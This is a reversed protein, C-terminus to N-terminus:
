LNPPCRPRDGCCNRRARPKGVGGGGAELPVERPELQQPRQVGPGEAAPKTVFLAPPKAARRRGPQDTEKQRLQSPRGWGQGTIGWRDELECTATRAQVWVSVRFLRLCTDCGARVRRLSVQRRRKAGTGRAESVEGSPASPLLM